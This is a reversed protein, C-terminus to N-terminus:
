PVCPAVMGRSLAVEQRIKCPARVGRAQRYRSFLSGIKRRPNKRSNFDADGGFVGSAAHATDYGLGDINNETRVTARGHEIDDYDLL